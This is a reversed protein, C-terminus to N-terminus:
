PSLAQGRHERSKNKGDDRRSEVAFSTLGPDMKVKSNSHKQRPCVFAVAFHIGANAPIVVFAFSADAARM